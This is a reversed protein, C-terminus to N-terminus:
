LLKCLKSVDSRSFWDGLGSILDKNVRRKEAYHNEANEYATRARGVVLKANEADTRAKQLSAGVELREKDVAARIPAISKEIKEARSVFDNLSEEVDQIANLEKKLGDERQKIETYAASTLDSIKSLAADTAGNTLSKSHEIYAEADKLCTSEICESLALVKQLVGAVNLNPAKTCHKIVSRKVSFQRLIEQAEQRVTDLEDVKSSM